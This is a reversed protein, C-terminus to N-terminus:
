SSIVTIFSKLIIKIFGLHVEALPICVLLPDSELNKDNDCNCYSQWPDNKSKLSKRWIWVWCRSQKWSPTFIDWDSEIRVSMVWTKLGPRSRREGNCEILSSSNHNHDLAQYSEYSWIKLRHRQRYPSHLLKQVTWHWQHHDHCLNVSIARPLPSWNCHSRSEWGFDPSDFIYKSNVPCDKSEGNINVCESPSSPSFPSNSHVKM